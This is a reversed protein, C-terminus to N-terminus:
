RSSPAFCEIFGHAESVIRQLEPRDALTFFARELRGVTQNNCVFQGIAWSSALHEDLLHSFLIIKGDKTTVESALGALHVAAGPDAAKTWADFIRHINGGAIVIMELLAKIPYRLRFGVPWESLSLDALKDVLLADFYRDLLDVELPAWALRYNAQGLRALCHQLDGYHPPDNLAILELYRPLFHRLVHGDAPEDYGHASNTYESLLSSSIQRLQTNMLLREHEASCCVNCNCVGLPFGISQGSFMIYAEVIMARLNPSLTSVDALLSSKSLSM